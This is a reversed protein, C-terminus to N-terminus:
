NILLIFLNYKGVTYKNKFKFYIRTRRRRREPFMCTQHHKMRQKDTKLRTNIKFFFSGKLTFSKMPNNFIM